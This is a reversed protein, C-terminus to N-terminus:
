RWGSRATAPARLTDNVRNWVVRPRLESFEESPYRGALLDLTNALQEDSLEAFNACRRVLAAVDAVPLEGRAAVHAVVQQALM